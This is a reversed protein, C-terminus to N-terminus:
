SPSGGSWWTRGRATPRTLHRHVRAHRLLWRKIEPTTHTGHNDCVLHVDLEAAVNHDITRLFRLFEQHRHRRHVQSIVKGSAVDLAAFLSATGNRVDDHHAAGPNRAAATRDLAQIQRKQDVCLV